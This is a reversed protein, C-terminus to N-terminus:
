SAPALAFYHDIFDNRFKGAPDARSLLAAFDASREYLASVAPAPVTFLKGWHPRAMLPALRDEMAALVPLVAATDNIWTFHLAVTDRQYSPSMWLDDAAVTRIESIQLVPAMREGLGAM